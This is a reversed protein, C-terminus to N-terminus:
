KIIKMYRRIDKIIITDEYLNNLNFSNDKSNKKNQNKNPTQKNTM